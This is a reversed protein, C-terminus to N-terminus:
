ARRVAFAGLALLFGVLPLLVLWRRWDRSDALPVSSSAKPGQNVTTGRSPSASPAPSSSPAPATLAARLNLVGAGFQSDPGNSGRDTATARLRETVQDATLQPFASRVLAAAGCLIGVGTAGTQMRYGGGATASIMDVGPVGLGTTQRSAPPVAVAGSRNLAISTLV